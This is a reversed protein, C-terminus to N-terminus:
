RGRAVGDYKVSGTVHVRDSFAGLDRFGAAYEETQATVLDVRKLLPRVIWALRAYRKLSRPSLRANIVAVPVGRQKAAAVFNPWLESEALVVIAPNM